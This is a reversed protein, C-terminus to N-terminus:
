EGQREVEMIDAHKTVMWFPRTDPPATWRVPDDRRIVKFIEDYAGPTTFTSPDAIAEDVSASMSCIRMVEFEFYPPPRLGPSGGGPDSLPSSCKGVCPSATCARRRM